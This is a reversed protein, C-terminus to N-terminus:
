EPMLGFFDDYYDRILSELEKDDPYAFGTNDQVLSNNINRVRSLYMEGCRAFIETPTLYYGLNFKTHGKLQKKLPDGDDLANLKNLLLKKYRKRIKLFSAKDSLKGYEYDLMHFMEHPMSWPERVDVCLCKYFPYYLGAAKHHGLKRFRVSVEKHETINLYKILALFEKEVEGIKALDCEEDFEVYGFIENFLSNEMANVIKEPINKKTEYSAAYDKKLLNFYEDEQKHIDYEEQVIEFVRCLGNHIRNQITFFLIRDNDEKDIDSTLLYLPFINEVSYGTVEREKNGLDNKMEEDTVMHYPIDNDKFWKSVFNFNFRDRLYCVDDLSKAMVIDHMANTLEVYLSSEEIGEAAMESQVYDRLAVLFVRAAFFDDANVVTLYDASVRMLCYRNGNQSKTLKVSGGVPSYCIKEEREGDRYSNFSIKLTAEFDGKKNRMLAKMLEHPYSTKEVLEAKVTGDFLSEYESFNGKELCRNLVDRIYRSTQQLLYMYKQSNNEKKMYTNMNVTDLISEKKLRKSRKSNKERLLSVIKEGRHLYDVASALAKEPKKPVEELEKFFDFLSLQELM